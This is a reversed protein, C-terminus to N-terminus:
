FYSDLINKDGYVIKNEFVINLINAVNKTIDYRDDVNFM